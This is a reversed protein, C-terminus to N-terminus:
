GTHVPVKQQTFLSKPCSDAIFDQMFLSPIKLQLKRLM